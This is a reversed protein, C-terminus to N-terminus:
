VAFEQVAADFDPDIEGALQRGVTALQVESWTERWRGLDQPDLGVPLTYHTQCDDSLFVVPLSEQRLLKRLIEGDALQRPNLYFVGGQWGGFNPRLQYTMVVVWTGQSNRKAALDLVLPPRVELFWDLVEVRVVAAIEDTGERDIFRVSYLPEERLVAWSEKGIVIGTQEM